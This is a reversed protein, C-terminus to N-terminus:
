SGTLGSRFASVVAPVRDRVGLKALVNAVLSKVTTTSLELADAIEANSLGDAILRLM